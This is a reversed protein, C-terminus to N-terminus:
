RMPNWFPKLVMLRAFYLDRVSTRLTEKVGLLEYKRSFYKEQSASVEMADEGERDPIVNPKPPNNILSNIVAETNTFVRGNTIKPHNRPISRLWEANGEYVAKNKNYITSINDWVTTTSELRNDILKKLQKDDLDIIRQM